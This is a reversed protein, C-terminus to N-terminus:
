LTPPLQNHAFPGSIPDLSAWTDHLIRVGREIREPEGTFPVRIFREHAGDIGFKPGATIRVGRRQGASALSSSLPEGLGVWLSLGGHVRPTNWEPLHTRLLGTLLDRRVRLQDSRRRLLADYDALAEIAIMQDIVPTGLDGAPRSSVLRSILAQDARIWGVRLGGWITKSLSGVSVVTSSSRKDSVAAFSPPCWPRDIDLDATTEDVLVLSGARRAAALVRERQEAPMSAGTPNHFDPILYVLEPRVCELVSTLHDTDWGSNTVPTSTLRGGASLIAEYAHPYTPAEVVVRDAHRLVTRTLLAIAHQAGLTVMIQEPATRAGRQTYLAAILERLRREGVLDFGPRSLLEPVADGVGRVIEALGGVAPPMARAFDVEAVGQGGAGAQPLVAVSGSGRVSILHGSERLAGYAAVITTRSRGLAEALERESPLRTYPAIRGDNLLLAIRAALAAYVAEGRHWEGLLAVLQRAGIHARALPRSISMSTVIGCAM